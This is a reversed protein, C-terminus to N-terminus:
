LHEPGEPDRNLIVAEIVRKTYTTLVEQTETEFGQRKGERGIILM